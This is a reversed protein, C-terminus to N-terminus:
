IKRANPLLESEITETTMKIPCPRCRLVARHSKTVLGQDCVRPMRLHAAMPSIHLTSGSIKGTVTVSRRRWKAQDLLMRPLWPARRLLHCNSPGRLLGNIARGIQRPASTEKPHRGNAEAGTWMERGRRRRQGEVEIKGTVTRALVENRHVIARTMPPVGGGSAWLTTLCRRVVVIDVLILVLLVQGHSRLHRPRGPRCVALLPMERRGQSATVTRRTGGTGTETVTAIRRGTETGIAGTVIRTEKGTERGTVSGSTDTAAETVTVNARASGISTECRGSEVQDIAVALTEDPSVLNQGRSGTPTDTWIDTMRDMAPGEIQDHDDAAPVAKKVTIGRGLARLLLCPAAGHRLPLHERGPNVV